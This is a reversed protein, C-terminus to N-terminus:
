GGAQEIAVNGAGLDAGFRASEDSIRAPGPDGSDVGGDRLWYYADKTTVIPAELM